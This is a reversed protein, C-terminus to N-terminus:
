RFCWDFEKPPCGLSLILIRYVNKMMDTKVVRVEEVTKGEKKLLGRLVVAYERLKRTLLWNLQGSSSSSYSEPFASQPVVGYKEIINVLMDWQGGDSIPSSLITQTLRDDVDLDSHSIINELFYNSKELKYHFFIFSQSLQFEQLNYKKM